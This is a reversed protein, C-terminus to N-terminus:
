KEFSVVWMGRLDGPVYDIAKDKPYTKIIHRYDSEALTEGIKGHCKLCPQAIMIPAYFNHEIVIPSLPKEKQLQDAFTDLVKTETETPADVPNRYKLSTRRISVNNAKSLSDILPLAALNCYSVANVVGGEQMATQLKGSLAAFATATIKRGETLYDRSKSNSEDTATNNQESSSSQCSVLGLIAFLLSFLIKKM